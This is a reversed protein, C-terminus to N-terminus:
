PAKYKLVGKLIPVKHGKHPETNPPMDQQEQFQPSGNFKSKSKIHSHLDIIPARGDGDEEEVYSDDELVEEEDELHDM